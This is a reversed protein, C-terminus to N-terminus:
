PEQRLRNLGHTILLFIYQAACPKCKFQPSTLKLNCNKKPKLYVLLWKFSWILPKAHKLEKVLYIVIYLIHGITYTLGQGYVNPRLSNKLTQTLGQLEFLPFAVAFLLVKFLTAVM